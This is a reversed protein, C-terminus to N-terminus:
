ESEQPIGYLTVKHKRRVAWYADGYSYHWYERFYNHFGQGTMADYLIRRREVLTVPLGKCSMPAQLKRSMVAEPLELDLRRGTADGLNVDVAGGTMHGPPVPDDPMALINRIRIDREAQTLNPERQRLREMYLTYLAWTMRETRFADRIILSYGAPLTESARRLKEAVMRRLQRRQAENAEVGLDVLWIFAREGLITNDLSVLPECNDQTRVTRLAENLTELYAADDNREGLEKLRTILTLDLEKDNAINDDLM